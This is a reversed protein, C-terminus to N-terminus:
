ITTRRRIVMTLNNPGTKSLIQQVYESSSGADLATGNISVIIDGMAASRDSSARRIEGGIVVFLDKGGDSAGRDRSIAVKLNDGDVWQQVEREFELQLPSDSGELMATVADFKGMYDAQFGDIRTVFDNIQMGGQWARGGRVVETVKIRGSESTIIIGFKKLLDETQDSNGSLIDEDVDGPPAAQYREYGGVWERDERVALVEPDLREIGKLAKENAPDSQFIKSYFYYAATDEGRRVAREALFVLNENKEGLIVNELDDARVEKDEDWGAFLIGRDDRRLVVGSEERGDRTTIVDASVSYQTMFISMVFLVAKKV